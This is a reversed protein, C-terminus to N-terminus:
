LCVLTVKNATPNVFPVDVAEHMSRLMVRITDEGGGVQVCPHTAPSPIVAPRQQAAMGMLLGFQHDRFSFETERPQPDAANSTLLRSVGGFGPSAKVLLEWPATSTIRAGLLRRYRLQVLMTPTPFGDSPPLNKEPEAAGATFVRSLSLHHRPRATDLVSIAFERGQYAVLWRHARPM